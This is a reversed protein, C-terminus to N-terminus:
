DARIGLWDDAMVSLWWGILRGGRGPQRSSPCTQRNAAAVSRLASHSLGLQWVNISPCTQRNAADSPQPGYRAPNAHVSGPGPPSRQARAPVSVRPVHPADSDPRRNETHFWSEQQSALWLRTVARQSAPRSWKPRLAARPAPAHPAVFSERSQHLSESGSASSPVGHRRRCQTISRHRARCDLASRQQVAIM